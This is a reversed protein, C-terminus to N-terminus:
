HSKHPFFPDSRGDKNSSVRRRLTPLKGDQKLEEYKAGVAPIALLWDAGEKGVRTILDHIKTLNSVDLQGMDRAVRVIVRNNISIGNWTNQCKECYGDILLIEPNIPCEEFYTQPFEDVMCPRTLKGNALFTSPTEQRRAIRLLKLTNSVDVTGQDDSFIIFPRNKSRDSLAKKVDESADQGYKKILEEDSLQDARKMQEILLDIGTPRSNGSEASAILAEKKNGKLAAWGAKFKLLKVGRKNVFTEQVADETTSESNLIFLGDDPKDKEIGLDQLITWMTSLDIGMIRASETVLKELPHTTESPSTTPNSM